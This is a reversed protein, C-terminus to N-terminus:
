CENYYTSLLTENINIYQKRMRLIVDTNALANPYFKEISYSNSNGIAICKYGVIKHALNGFGPPLDVDASSDAVGSVSFCAISHFLDDTDIYLAKKDKPFQNNIILSLRKNTSAISRYNNASKSNTFGLNKYFEETASDINLVISSIYNLGTSKHVTNDVTEFNTTMMNIMQDNPVFLIRTGDPAVTMLMDTDRDVVRSPVFDNGNSIFGLGTIGPASVSESEHLLVICNHQVWFGVKNNKHQTRHVFGMRTLSNCIETYDESKFSYEIFGFDYM